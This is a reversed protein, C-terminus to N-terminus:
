VKIREDVTFRSLEMGREKARLSVQMWAEAILTRLATPQLDVSLRGSEINTLDLLDNVLGLLHRGAALVERAYGHYTSPLPGATENTAMESFGIIANLPTRLEHSIMALFNSKTADAAQLRALAQDLEANQNKLEELTRELEHRAWRAFNEAVIQRTMDTGTGRYGLFRGTEDDFVAVGSLHIHRTEGDVNKIVFPQTRFPLRSEILETVAPRGEAPEGFNGLSSLPRGLLRPAPEGLAATIQPSVATLRLEADTEWVWDSTSRLFDEYRQRMEAARSNAAAQQTVDVYVGGFGLVTGDTGQVSFHISHYSHTEEDGRVNETLEVRTPTTRVRDFIRLLRAPAPEGPRPAQCGLLLECVRAFASNSRILRGEADALYHAPLQETLARRFPEDGARPDFDGGEQRAEPPEGDGSLSTTVDFLKRM